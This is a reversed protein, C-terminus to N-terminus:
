GNLGLLGNPSSFTSGTDNQPWREKTTSSDGCNMKLARTTIEQLSHSGLSNWHAIARCCGFRPVTHRWRMLAGAAFVANATAVRELGSALGRPNQGACLSFWLCPDFLPQCVTKTASNQICLIPSLAKLRIVITHVSLRSGHATTVPAPASRQLQRDALEGPSAPTPVCPADGVAPGAAPFFGPVPSCQAHSGV